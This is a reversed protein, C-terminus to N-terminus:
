DTLLSGTACFATEDKLESSFFQLLLASFRGSESM